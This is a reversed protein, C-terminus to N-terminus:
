LLGVKLCTNHWGGTTCFTRGQNVYMQYAYQVNNAPDKLWQESPRKIANAGYLNIQFCGVSYDGTAPNDNVTQPNNTSEQMMVKHAQDQPWDYKSLESQCDGTPQLPVSTERVEM